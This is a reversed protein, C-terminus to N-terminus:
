AEHRRSYFWCWTFLMGIVAGLPTTAFSLLPGQADNTLLIPAFFGLVFGVFSFSGVSGLGFMSYSYFTPGTQRKLYIRWILLPLYSFAASALFILVIWTAVNMLGLAPTLGRRVRRNPALIARMGPLKLSAVVRRRSSRSTLRSPLRRPYFRLASASLGFGPLRPAGRSSEAPGRRLSRM